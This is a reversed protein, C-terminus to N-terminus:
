KEPQAKPRQLPRRRMRGGILEPLIAALLVTTVVPHYLLLPDRERISMAAGHLTPLVITAAYAPWAWARVRRVGSLHGRRRLFGQEGGLSTRVRGRYKRYFSALGTVHHHELEAGPVLAIRGGATILDIIPLVDDARAPDAGLGRERRITCGQAMALLPHARPSAPLLVYGPSGPAGPPAPAALRRVMVEMSTGSSGYVFHSFPDSYRNIYRNVLSDADTSVVRPFAVAVAPDRFPSAMRELFGDGRIWNDAALVMALSGRAQTIGLAVGPEARRLPNDLVRAGAATAIARTPDTSGGDLVLIEYSQRPMSQARIRELCAPLDRAANLAPIVISLAPADAM